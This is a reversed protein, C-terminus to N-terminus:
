EVPDDSDREVVEVINGAEDRKVTKSKSRTVPMTVNVVAPPVNVVPAPVPRSALDKVATLTEGLVKMVAENPDPKPPEALYAVALGELYPDVREYQQPGMPDADDVVCAPPGERALELLREPGDAPPVSQAEAIDFDGVGCRFYLHKGTRDAVARDDIVVVREAAEPGPVKDADDGELTVVRVRVYREAKPDSIFMYDGLSYGGMITALTTANERNRGHRSERSYQEPEGGSMEETIDDISPARDQLGLSGLLDRILKHTIQVMEPTFEERAYRKSRPKKGPGRSPEAPNHPINPDDSRWLHQDHLAGKVGAAAAKVKDEVAAMARAAPGWKLIFGALQMMTLPGVTGITMAEAAHTASLAAARVKSHAYNAMWEGIEGTYEGRKVARLFEGTAHKAKRAGDKVMETASDYGVYAIARAVPNRLRKRAEKPTIEGSELAAFTESADQYAGQIEEESPKPQAAAKEIFSPKKLRELKSGLKRDREILKQMEPLKQIAGLSMGEKQRAQQVRMMEDTNLQRQKGVTRSAQERKSAGTPRAQREQRRSKGGGSPINYDKEGTNKNVRYRGGHEGTMVPGFNDEDDAAYQEADDWSGSVVEDAVDLAEGIDGTQELAAALAAAYLDPDDAGRIRAFIADPQITATM